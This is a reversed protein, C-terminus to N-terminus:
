GVVDWKKIREGNENEKREKLKVGEKIIEERIREEEDWKKEKILKMSEEIREEIEREDVDEREFIKM